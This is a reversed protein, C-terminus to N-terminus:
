HMGGWKFEHLRIQLYVSLCWLTGISTRSWEISERISMTISTSGHIYSKRSLMSLHTTLIRNTTKEESEGFQCVRSLQCYVLKICTCGALQHFENCTQRRIAIIMYIYSGDDDCFMRYDTGLVTMWSYPWPWGHTRDDMLITMWSSPWGSIFRLRGKEGKGPAYMEDWAEAFATLSSQRLWRAYRGAWSAPKCGHGIPLFGRHLHVLPQLLQAAIVHAPVISLSRLQHLSCRLAVLM